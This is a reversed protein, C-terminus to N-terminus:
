SSGLRNIMEICMRVNHYPAKWPGAKDHETSVSGDENVLWYWEGHDKDIHHSLIFEWCKLAAKYYAPDQTLDYANWFGVVAEAQCWWHKEACLSGSDDIENFLSGDNQVGHELVGQALDQVISLVKMKYNPDHILAAAEWLLWSAEINHGYSISRGKPKWNEDFYVQISTTESIYFRDVFLDICRKLAEGILDSPQVRFLNTYAELIHLHTNMIKAENADKESLRIDEITSWDHAFASLYGGSEHDWSYKEILEFLEVAMEIAETDNTVKFYEAM